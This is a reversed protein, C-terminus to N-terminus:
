YPLSRSTNDQRDGQGSAIVVRPPRYIIDEAIRYNAQQPLAPAVDISAEAVAPQTTSSAEAGGALPAELAAAAAPSLTEDAYQSIQFDLHERTMVSTREVTGKVEKPGPLRAM